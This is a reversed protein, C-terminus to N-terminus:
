PELNPVCPGGACPKNQFVITNKPKRRFRDLRMNIM